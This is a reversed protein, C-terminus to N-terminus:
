TMRGREAAARQGEAYDREAQKTLRRLHLAYGGIGVWTVVYAAIIYSWENTM